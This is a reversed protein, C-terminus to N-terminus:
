NWEGTIRSNADDVIDVIITGSFQKGQDINQNENNEKIFIIVDYEQKVNGITKEVFESNSYGFISNKAILNYTKEGTEGDINYCRNAAESSANDCKPLPMSEANTDQDLTLWTGSTVNRVAYALYEFENSESQLTATATKNGESSKISFRYVSCVERGNKDICRNTRGTEPDDAAQDNIDEINGIYAAQVVALSAPILEAGQAIVNQGDEYEISVIAATANVAGENSHVSISFYALTAGILAIILTAVAVIGYFIDRKRNDNM